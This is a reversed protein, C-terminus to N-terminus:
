FTKYPKISIFIIQAKTNLFLNYKNFCFEMRTEEFIVSVIENFNM